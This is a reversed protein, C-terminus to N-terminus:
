LEFKVNEEGFYKCLDDYTFENYYKTGVFLNSITINKEEKIKKIEDPTLQHEYSEDTKNIPLGYVDGGITNVRTFFIPVYGPSEYLSMLLIYSSDSINRSDDIVAFYVGNKSKLIILKLEVEDWDEEGFPDVNMNEYYKLYYKYESLYKM